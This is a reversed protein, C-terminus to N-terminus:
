DGKITKAGPFAQRELCGKAMGTVSEVLPHKCGCETLGHEPVSASTNTEVVGKSLSRVLADTDFDHPRV